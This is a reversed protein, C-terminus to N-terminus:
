LRLDPFPPPSLRSLSLPVLSRLRRLDLGTLVDRSVGRAALHSTAPLLVASASDDTANSQVGKRQWRPESVTLSVM